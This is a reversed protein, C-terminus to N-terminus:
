QSGCNRPWAVPIVSDPPPQGRRMDPHNNIRETMRGTLDDPNWVVDDGLWRAGRTL